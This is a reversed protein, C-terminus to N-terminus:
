FWSSKKADKDAGLVAKEWQERNAKIQSEASVIRGGDAPVWTPVQITFTKCVTPLRDIESGLEHVPYFVLQYFVWVKNEQGRQLISRVTGLDPHFGVPENDQLDSLLVETPEAAAM